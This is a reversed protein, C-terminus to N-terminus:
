TLASGKEPERPGVTFRLPKGKTCTVSEVAIDDVDLVIQKTGKAAQVNLLATGALTKTTFDVRLDIAVHTVRAIRPQAHTLVDVAEPTTLIPAPKATQAFAPPALAIMSAAALLPLLMRM